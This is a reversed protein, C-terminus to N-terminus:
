EEESTTSIIEEISVLGKLAKIIGDQRLSTMGQRKKEAAVQDPKFGSLVIQKLERTIGIAESVSVRGQYGVGGCKPCGKSKFFKLEELNMDKFIEPKPINKIEEKVLTIIKEPALAPARCYECLRRVLRQAVIVNLTSTLLFPEVKMDILRPIAGAADNTHLTALVIHGTLAAHVALEATEADRIEGVMIIDPDQRLLARLGSAFTFNVDPNIQSQNVGEIHYEVPDELTSINVEEQNLIDLVSFLTTSKGSGTPGTVLFMGNPKKINEDILQLDHYMFGLNQLSPAKAAQLIRMVVKEGEDLPITSVRLDIKKKGERHRIHGDQPIRTEDIKLGALVKIRSILAAHIYKPLILSTNLQGDIRYRVRTKDEMPEIHIDSARGDIAHNLIVSVMKAVPASKIVEEYGEGEKKASASPTPTKFKEEALTLAKGVESTLTSYQKQAADLGKYSTVFYKIKLNNKRAFFEIAERAKFNGADALAVQFFPEERAFAVLGYNEALDQPIINLIEKSIKKNVLDIQPLGFFDSKAKLLADPKVLGSDELVQSISKVEKLAQKEIDKAQELKLIKQTILNELFSTSM